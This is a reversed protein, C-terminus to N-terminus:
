GHGTTSTSQQIISYMNAVGIRDVVTRSETASKSLEANIASRTGLLVVHRVLGDLNSRLLDDYADM